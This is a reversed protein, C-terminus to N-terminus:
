KGAEIFDWFEKKKSVSKMEREKNCYIFYFCRRLQGTCKDKVFKECREVAM